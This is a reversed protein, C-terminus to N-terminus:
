GLLFKKMLLPHLGFVAWNEVPNYQKFTVLATTKNSVQFISKTMLMTFVVSWHSLYTYMNTFLIYYDSAEVVRTCGRQVEHDFYIYWKIKTKNFTLM